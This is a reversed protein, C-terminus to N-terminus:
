VVSPDDLALGGVNAARERESFERYAAYMQRVDVVATRAAAILYTSDEGATSMAREFYAVVDRQVRELEPYIRSIYELRRRCRALFRSTAAVVSYGFRAPASRLLSSLTRLSEEVGAVSVFAYLCKRRLRIDTKYDSMRRKVLAVLKPSGSIDLNSLQDLVSWVGNLASGTPQVRASLLREAAGLLYEQVVEHEWAYASLLDVARPFHETEEVSEVFLVLERAIEADRLEFTSLTM